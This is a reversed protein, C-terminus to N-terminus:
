KPTQPSKPTQPATGFFSETFEQSANLHAPTDAMLVQGGGLVYTYDSIALAARARQEVILVSAGGAALRRVHEELLEAAV